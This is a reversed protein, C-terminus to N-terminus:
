KRRSRLYQQWSVLDHVRFARQPYEPLGVEQGVLYAMMENMAPDAPMRGAERVSSSDEFLESDEQFITTHDAGPPFYLGGRPIELVFTHVTRSPAARKWEEMDIRHIHKLLHRLLAARGDQTELFRRVASRQSTGEPRSLIGYLYGSDNRLRFLHYQTMAERWFVTVGLLIVTSCGLGAIITVPKRSFSVPM